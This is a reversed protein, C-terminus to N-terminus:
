AERENTVCINVDNCILIIEACCACTVAKEDTAKFRVDYVDGCLTHENGSQSSMLHILGDNEVFTRRITHKKVSALEQYQPTVRTLVSELNSVRRATDENKSNFATVTQRAASILVDIDKPMRRLENM